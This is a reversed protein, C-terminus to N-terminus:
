QQSGIWNIERATQEGVLVYSLNKPMTATNDSHPIRGGMLEAFTQPYRPQLNPEAFGQPYLPQNTALDYKDTAGLLHLMEHAIVINNKRAMKKEAFANAVGLMGKELGFSHDLRDHTNPDYYVVFMQMDGPGDFNDVKYAWYRMKLSWFIIDLTSGNRPPPPPLQRVETALKVEIPRELMLDYRDIEESMFNEIGTYNEEQLNKIYTATKESGDGNIPYVVLWLTSEWDTARLKTLSSNLAVFALVFLLLAVRIKKPIM